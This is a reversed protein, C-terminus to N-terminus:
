GKKNTTPNITTLWDLVEKAEKRVDAVPSTAAARQAHDQIFDLVDQPMFTTKVPMALGHFFGPLQGREYGPTAMNLKAEGAEFDQAWEKFIQKIRKPIEVEKM